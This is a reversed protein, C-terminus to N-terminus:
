LIHSSHPRYGAVLHRPFTVKRMSKAEARMRRGSTGQGEEHPDLDDLLSSGADSDGPEETARKIGGHTGSQASDRRKIGVANIGNTQSGVNGNPNGNV